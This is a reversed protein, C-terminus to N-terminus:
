LRIAPLFVRRKARRITRKAKQQQLIDSQYDTHNYYSSNTHSHRRTELRKKKFINM